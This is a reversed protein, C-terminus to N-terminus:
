GDLFKRLLAQESTLEQFLGGLAQAEQAAANREAAFLGM